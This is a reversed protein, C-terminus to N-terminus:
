LQSSKLLKTSHADEQRVPMKTSRADQHFPCRARIRGRAPLIDVASINISLNLLASNKIRWELNEM